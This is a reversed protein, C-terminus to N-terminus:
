TLRKRSTWTKRNQGRFGNSHFEVRFRGMVVDSKWKTHYNTVDMARSEVCLEPTLRLESSLAWAPLSFELDLQKTALDAECRSVFLRFLHPLVKADGKKLTVGIRQFQKQVAANISDATDSTSSADEAAKIRADLSKLEADL